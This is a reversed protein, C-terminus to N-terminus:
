ENSDPGSSRKCSWLFKLTPYPDKEEPLQECPIVGEMVNIIYRGKAGGKTRGIQFKIGRLNKQDPSQEELLRWATDTLEL